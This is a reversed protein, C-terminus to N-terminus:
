TATFRLVRLAEGLHASGVILQLIRQFFQLDSRQLCGLLGRIHAAITLRGRTIKRALRLREFCELGAMLVQDFLLLAVSGIQFLRLGIGVLQFFLKRLDLRLKLLALLLDFVHTRHECGNLVLDNRDGFLQLIGTELPRLQLFGIGIVLAHDGRALLLDM